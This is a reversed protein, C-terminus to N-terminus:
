AAVSIDESCLLCPTRKARRELFPGVASKIQGGEFGWEIPKWQLVLDCYSDIWAEASTRKRWVDLVYMRDDPDVGVVLHVTYDGGDQTVAFDSAGYVHTHSPRQTYPKLWQEEFYNGADPVPSQQYLAAWNRPPQQSQERELMRAYGYTDSWLM